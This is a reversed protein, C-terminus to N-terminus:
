WIFFLPNITNLIVWALVIMIFAIIWAIVKTKGSEIADDSWSASIIIWGFVIAWIAILIWIKILVSFIKAIYVNILWTASLDQNKWWVKLKQVVTWEPCQWNSTKKFVPKDDQMKYCYLDHDDLPAMLWIDKSSAANINNWNNKSLSASYVINSWLLFLILILAISFNILKNKM